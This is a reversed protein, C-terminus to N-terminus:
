ARVLSKSKQDAEMRAHWVEIKKKMTEYNKKDGLTYYLRKMASLYKIAMNMDDLRHDTSLEYKLRYGDSAKELLEMALRMHKVRTIYGPSRPDSEARYTKLNIMNKAITAFRAEIEMLNWKWRTNTGLVEIILDISFGLKRLLNFRTEESVKSIKEVKEEYESFPADVTASVIKELSILAKLCRKRANNLSTEDKIGLLTLSLSNLVLYYSILNLNTDALMLLKIEVGEQESNAIKTLKAERKQLSVAEVRYLKVKEDYKEKAEANIKSM